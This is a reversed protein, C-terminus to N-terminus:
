SDEEDSAEDESLVLKANSIANRLKKVDQKMEDKAQKIERKMEDKAQNVERRLSQIENLIRLLMDNGTDTDPM